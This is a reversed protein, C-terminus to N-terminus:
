WNIISMLNANNDTWVLREDSNDRWESIGDAVDPLKWLDHDRSYLAWSSADDCDAEEGDTEFWNVDLGFLQAMGRHLPAM